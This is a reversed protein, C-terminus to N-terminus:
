NKVLYGSFYNGEGDSFVYYYLNNPTLHGSANVEGNWDNKYAKAEYIEQGDNDFIHLTNEPYNEVGLIKFNELKKDQSNTALGNYITLTECLIDISVDVKYTKEAAILQYTFTDESECLNPSPTYSFSQDENILVEGFKPTEIVRLQVPGKVDAQELYDFTVTNNKVVIIHDQTELNFYINPNQTTTFQFLNTWLFLSIMGFIRSNKITNLHFESM